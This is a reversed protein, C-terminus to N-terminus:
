PQNLQALTDRYTWPLWDAPNQALLDYHRLLETLYDFANVGNLEATHILSMFVDSVRAGHLTKYFLANKRHLIAKKLARECINNDLPAGPVSLFRTLETWHKDMYKIAEGLGSNPEVKKQEFQEALWAKLKEMLPGSKQQHFCLREAPSLQQERARAENKYVDCLTDLVFRVEDPFDEFVDVFKRRSHPLCNALITEFGQPLNRSLGDCMQIPPGLEAARKALVRALNEGAHRRGTFYLAILRQQKVAVISSTFIGTRAADDPEAEADPEDPAVLAAMAAPKAAEPAAPQPAVAEALAGVAAAADRRQQNEKMLALIRQWTDDNHLLEGQAAQKVLENRVPKLQQAGKEVLGWQTTEPLPIGLNAQLRALRHFPMGTGYKLLGIMATASEDYKDQGVDPPADAIFVEGCLHCRLRQLEYIEAQMPAQGRIRVIVAPEKMEYLKGKPCLPCGCGPTFKEHAVPHRKAGTYADAGNRGHGPPKPKDGAAPNEGVAAATKEPPAITAAAQAGAAPSTAGVGGQGLVQDTKESKSGFLLKRLKNLSVRKSELLHTVYALTEVLWKLQQYDREDVTEKVRALLQELERQDLDIRRRQEKM